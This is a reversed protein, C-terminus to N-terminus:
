YRKMVIRTMRVSVIQWNKGVLHYLKGIKVM